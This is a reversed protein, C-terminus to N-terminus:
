FQTFYEDVINVISKVEETEVGMGHEKMKKVLDEGDILDIITVREPNLAEKKAESTFKGTTIVMGKDVNSPLSGRFDRIVSSPVVGQYKKAQFAIRLSVLGQIKLIGTGDIGKDNTQPTEEVDTVGSRELLDKCLMEFAVPTLSKVKELLTEDLNEEVSEKPIIKEIDDEEELYANRKRAEEAIIKNYKKTYEKEDIEQQDKNVLIWVSRGGSKLIGGKKLWSLAWSMRDLVISRDNNDYTYSVQEESIGMMDIVESEIEGRLGRGHMKKLSQIVPNFFKYFPPVEGSHKNPM